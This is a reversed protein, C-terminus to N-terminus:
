DPFEEILREWVLDMQYGKRQLFGAVKKRRALLNKLKVKKMQSHILKNLTHLYEEEDIQTLGYDIDSKQISKARLGLIIKHVGWANNRFKGRAYSAAFRRENIFNEEALKNLLKEQLKDEIDLKAMKAKLESIAREQYACYRSLKLFLDKEKSGTKM